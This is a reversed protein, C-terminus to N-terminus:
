KKIIKGQLKLTLAVILQIKIKQLNSNSSSKTNKFSQTFVFTLINKLENNKIELKSIYPFFWGFSNVVLPQNLQKKKWKRYFQLPILKLFGSLTILDIIKYGRDLKTKLLKPYNEKIEIAYFRYLTFNNFWSNQFPTFSKLSDNRKLCSFIFNLDMYPNIVNIGKLHHMQIILGFIKPYKEYFLYNFINSNRNERVNNIRSYKKYRNILLDLNKFIIEDRIIQNEKQFSLILNRIDQESECLQIEAAFKTLTVESSYSPGRIIESGMFGSILNQGKELKTCMHLFPPIDTIFPLGSGKFLIDTLYNDINKEFDEELYIIRHKINFFSAVENAIETQSSKEIGWTVTDFDLNESLLNGLLMRSDFGGTLTLSIKKQSNISQLISNSLQKFPSIDLHFDKLDSLFSDWNYVEIIQLDHPTLTIKVGCTIRKTNLDLTNDGLFHNFHILEIVALENLEKIKSFDPDNSIKISDNESCVFLPYAGFIDNYIEISNEKLIFVLGYDLYYKYDNEFNNENLIKNKLLNQIRNNDIVLFKFKESSHIPRYDELLNKQLQTFFKPHIIFQM